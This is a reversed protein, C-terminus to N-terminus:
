FCSIEEASKYDVCLFESAEPEMVLSYNKTENKIHAILSQYEIYDSNLYGYVQM